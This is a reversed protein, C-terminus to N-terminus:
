EISEKCGLNYKYKNIIIYDDKFEVRRIKEKIKRKKLLIEKERIRLSRNAGM